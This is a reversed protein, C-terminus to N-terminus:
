IRELYSGEWGQFLQWIEWSLTKLLNVPLEKRREACFPTQHIWKRAERASGQSLQYAYNKDTKSNQKWMHLIVFVM